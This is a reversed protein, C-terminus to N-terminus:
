LTMNKFFLNMLPIVKNFNIDALFDFLVFEEAESTVDIRCNSSDINASVKFNISLRFIQFM